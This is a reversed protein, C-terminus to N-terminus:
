ALLGRTEALTGGPFAYANVYTANVVHFRYPM